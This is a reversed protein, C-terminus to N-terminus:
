EIRQIHKRYDSRYYGIGMGGCLFALGLLVVHKKNLDLMARWLSPKVEVKRPIAMRETISDETFFLIYYAYSFDIAEHTFCSSCMAVCLVLTASGTPNKEPELEM